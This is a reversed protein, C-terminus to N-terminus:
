TSVWEKTGSIAFEGTPLDCGVLCLSQNARQNISSYPTQPMRSNAFSEQLRQDIVEDM